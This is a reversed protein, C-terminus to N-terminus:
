FSARIPCLLLAHCVSTTVKGYKQFYFCKVTHLRPTHRQEEHQHRTSFIVSLFACRGSLPKVDGYCIHVKYAMWESDQGLDTCNM